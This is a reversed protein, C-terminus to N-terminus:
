SGADDGLFALGVIRWRGDHRMLTVADVGEWESVAGPDGFRAHYRVWVQALDRFTTLRADLMREEFVQRSGPGRPAQRVFDPISTAVVRVAAEDPPRWVTTIDAGPWFHDAFAEWDRASFDRYYAVLEQMVATSDAAAALVSASAGRRPAHTELRCAATLAVMGVVALGAGRTMRSEM